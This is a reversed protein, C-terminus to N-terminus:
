GVQAVARNHDLRTLCTINEKPISPAHQSLILANTNAALHVRACVSFPACPLVHHSRLSTTGTSFHM